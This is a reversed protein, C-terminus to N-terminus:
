ARQVVRAQNSREGKRKGRLFWKRAKLFEGEFGLRMRQDRCFASVFTLQPSPELLGKRGSM